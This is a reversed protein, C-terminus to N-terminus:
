EKDLLSLDVHCYGNPNKDLYDQHYEEAPWFKGAPEIRTVISFKYKGSKEQKEKSKLAKKRQEDNLYFIASRYQTGVDAGQRNLSTPDHIKWFHELIEEYTVIENNFEILISEAHGTNGTCVEEYTPNEKHGGCYGVETNVVGKVKKFYAEVGWFCGAALIAKEIAM